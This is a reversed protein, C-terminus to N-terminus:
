YYYYYYYCSYNTFFIGPLVLLMKQGENNNNNNKAYSIISLNLFEVIDIRRTDTNNTNINSKQGVM